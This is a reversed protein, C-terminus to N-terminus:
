GLEWETWMSARRHYIVHPLAAAVDAADFVLEYHDSGIHGAVLRAAEM